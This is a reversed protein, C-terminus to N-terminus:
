PDARLPPARGAAPQRPAPSEPPGGGGRGAASAESAERPPRARRWAAAPPTDGSTAAAGRGAPALAGCGAPGGTRPLRRVKVTHAFRKHPPGPPSVVRTVAFTVVTPGCM